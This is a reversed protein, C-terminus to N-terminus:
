KDVVLEVVGFAGDAEDHPGAAFFLQNTKQSLVGNGFQMGWLGDVHLPKGSEDKLQGLFKNAHRASYANITGDGLNGVLLAGGFQGFSAPALALGWPANLVGRTAVRRIFHGTPDFVSVFGKGPGQDEDEDGPKAQHAYTVYIDGGIAQIGFPSFSSPLTPDVFGGSVHVLAFTGDFVDIKQHKFDCAYLLHTTGDGSLALGTYHDDAAAGNAPHVQIANAPDVNPAWGAITGQETAFIFRAPGSATGNSVVFDMGGSFVIGTPNAPGGGPAPVNVVLPTPQPQPTGTGDFVFSKGGDASNVWAPTTPGFVLGWGNILNPEATPNQAPVGGNSILVTAKYVSSTAESQDNDQAIAAGAILTLAASAVVTRRPATATNM